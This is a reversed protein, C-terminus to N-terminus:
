VAWVVVGNQFEFNSIIANETNKFCLSLTSESYGIPLTKYVSDGVSSYVYTLGGFVSKFNPNHAIELTYSGDEEQTISTVEGDLSTYVSGQGAMTIVGNNITANHNITPSFDSYDRQDTQTVVESGFVGRMFVNLGSNPFISNTIFITALLIGIIVLQITIASMKFPKKEKKECTISVSESQEVVPPTQEKQEEGMMVETQVIVSKSKNEQETNIKNLLQDKVEEPNVKKKKTRKKVTKYTINCSQVPIELMSAYSLKENM